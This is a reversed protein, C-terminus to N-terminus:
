SFGDDVLLLIFALVGVDPFIYRPPRFLDFVTLTLSLKSCCM